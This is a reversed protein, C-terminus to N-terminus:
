QTKSQTADDIFLHYWSTIALLAWISYSADIAGARNRMIIDVIAEPNFIGRKACAEPTFRELLTQHLDETIWKRVPAGFGTKERYIIEKPLYREGVKRLLYKTTAGKMKLDTPITTSFDVLEKDLYPVRVEVGHAMSMKDTYNLNHDTLFFKLDWFLMQNLHDTEEPIHNLYDLLIDNPNHKEITKQWKEQFLKKNEELPLWAYLNAMGSEFHENDGLTFFKKLRRVSPAAKNLASINSSIFKRMVTPMWDIFSNYYLSQHRRYGSFLDDGGAGSLLVVIGMERAQKCINWVNLPAADAQPEDLHYIMNDFDRLIDIDAKVIELNVGLYEAVKKAFPLDQTFGEKNSATDSDITFCQMPKNGSVKKAMAVLLSSDLGGSLFSGVPVDALLQREVADLLQKELLNIWNGETHQQRKGNFPIEYFCEKEIVEPTKTNLKLFHGGELKKVDVLPTNAGPSWLFNVYDVLCSADLNKQLSPYNIFSKVESSFLFIGNKAYYYLPKIGFNDRAILLEETFLCYFAFAFIGNLRKLFDTGHAILGYLLTETDSSSKYPINPDLEKRLEWHNYIEGNFVICYNGDASFMPQHGAPTLDQIALRRHGLALNGHVFTGQDDPGRHAIADTFPQIHVAADPAVIGTIGCM